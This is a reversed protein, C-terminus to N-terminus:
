KSVKVMSPRIVKDDLMYGKQYTEIVLNENEESEETMVANHFNPDFTKGTSEIEKLGEKELVGLLEKQILKVGELFNKDETELGLARDFNDLVPLLKEVLSMTAFKRLDKKEKEARTRFNNFDAQLRVLTAKLEDKEDLKVEEKVEKEQDNAKEEEVELNQTDMDQDVEEKVEEKKVEKEDLM